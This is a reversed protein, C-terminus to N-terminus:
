LLSWLCNWNAEGAEYEDETITVSGLTWKLNHTTTSGDAVIDEIVGWTLQLLLEPKQMM